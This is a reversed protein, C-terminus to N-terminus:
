TGHEMVYVVTTGPQTEGYGVHLARADPRKVQGTRLSKVQHPDWFERDPGFIGQMNPRTLESDIGTQALFSPFDATNMELKFRVADDMGNSRLVGGLRTSPPFTLGLEKSLASLSEVAKVNESREDGDNNCAATTLSLGLMLLIRPLM